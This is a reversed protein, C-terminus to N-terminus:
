LLNQSSPINIIRKELSIATDLNMKQSNKYIKMKHLLSWVPRTQIKNNNTLYLIKDRLKEQGKNLIIAQLWQNSKSNKIQLNLKCFDLNKFNRKYLQHLRRKKILFNNIKSLQSCGLAANISPLRYNYGIGDYVQDFNKNIKKNKVLNLAKKSDNKNKSLIAGGGGTSIIKNGNFSLIGFDGFTGLHKGYYWSGLGEASDEILKLCYKKSIKSIKNIQCPNGFVHTAIIAKIIKKTKKNVCQKNKVITNKKLYIELKKPDIGLSSEECDLFHPQAKLYSIVNVSSIFGLTSLMVEDNQNVGSLILSVHLASTGNITTVINKAKTYKKLKNEFIKTYKGYTSIEKNRISTSVFKLDKEDLSPDHLFIYRGKKRAVKRIIKILNGIKNTESKLLNM